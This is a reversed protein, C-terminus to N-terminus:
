QKRRRLALVGTTKLLCLYHFNLKLKRAGKEFLGGAKKRFCFAPCCFGKDFVIYKDLYNVWFSWFDVSKM